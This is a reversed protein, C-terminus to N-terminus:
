HHSRLMPARHRHKTVASRGAFDARAPRAGSRRGRSVSSKTVPAAAAEAGFLRVYEAASMYGAETLARATVRDLVPM